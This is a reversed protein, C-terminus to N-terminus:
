FAVGLARCIYGMYPSASAFSEMVRAPFDEALVAKEDLTQTAIFDKRRLDEIMPHDKPYGRPATKLSEGTLQFRSRFGADDRAQLWAEPAEMIADRIKGLAKTDPQCSGVGLFVEEPEIHVYFGPAHVDRGASHRFQIGINTKYPRKDRSFRLDRQVRMLSGGAKRPVALFHESVQALQSGMTQIFDLAPERVLAEYRPKNAEFWPRNNNAKLETLFDLTDRTFHPM